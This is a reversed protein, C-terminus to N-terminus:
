TTYILFIWNTEQKITHLSKHISLYGLASDRGHKPEGWDLLLPLAALLWSLLQLTRFAHWLVQYHVCFGLTKLLIYSLWLIRKPDGTMLLSLYTACLYATRVERRHTAARQCSFGRPVELGFWGQENIEGVSYPLNSFWVKLNFFVWWFWFWFDYVYLLREQGM